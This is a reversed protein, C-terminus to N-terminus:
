CEGVRSSLLERVCGAACPRASEASVAFPFTRRDFCRMVSAGASKVFHDRLRHLGEGRAAIAFRAGARADMGVLGNLWQPTGGHRRGGRESVRHEGDGKGNTARKRGGRVRQLQEAQRKRCALGCGRRFGRRSALRLCEGDVGVFGLVSRRSLRLAVDGLQLLHHLRALEDLQAHRVVAAIARRQEKERAFHHVVDRQKLFLAEPADHLCLVLVAGVRHIRLERALAVGEGFAFDAARLQLRLLRKEFAHDRHRIIPCPTEGRDRWQVPAPSGPIAAGAASAPRIPLAAFRSAPRRASAARMAAAPAAVGTGSRLLDAAPVATASVRVIANFRATRYLCFLREPDSRFPKKVDVVDM